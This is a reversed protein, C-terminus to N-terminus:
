AYIEKNSINEDINFHKKSGKAEMEGWFSVHIHFDKGYIFLFETKQVRTGTPVRKRYVRNIFQWPFITATECLQELSCTNSKIKVYMIKLKKEWGSPCQQGMSNAHGYSRLYLGYRSWIQYSSKNNSLLHFYWHCFAIVNKLYFNVITSSESNGFKTSSLM